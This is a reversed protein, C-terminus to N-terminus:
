QNLSAQYNRSAADLVANAEKSEMMGQIVMKNNKGKYNAFWIQIIDTIGPYAKQLEEMSHIDKFSSQEVVPVAILKDDQEGDDLMKFGGIVRVQAVSGRAIAPGLVLVDLPDGDGGLEKPLSTGPIAGYNGPYALYHVIRPQANKFEWNVVSGDTKSIEWKENTGTPIEVVANITGNSNKSPIASLYDRDAQVSYTDVQKFDVWGFSAFSTMFLSTALILKHKM